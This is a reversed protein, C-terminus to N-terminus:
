EEIRRPKHSPDHVKPHPPTLLMGSRTQYAHPSGLHPRGGMWGRKWRGSLWSDGNRQRGKLVLNLVESGPNIPKPILGLLMLDGHALIHICKPDVHEYYEAVLLDDLLLRGAAQMVHAVVVVM